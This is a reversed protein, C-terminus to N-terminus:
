PNGPADKACRFGVYPFKETPLDSWRAFTV